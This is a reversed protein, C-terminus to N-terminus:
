KEEKKNQKKPLNIFYKIWNKRNGNTKMHCSKCLSTLNEPKINDKDYDKHHVDLKRGNEVEPCGCIQCKYGDRYRIQEKFTKNWGLPYPEFSKGGKWNSAEKGRKGFNPHNKGYKYLRLKGACSKCRGQGIKWTPYSIEKNCNSGVCYHKATKRGDIYRNAEKGIKIIMKGTKWRYINSCSKCRKAYKSIKQNCTKCYCKQKMKIRKQSISVDQLWMQCM